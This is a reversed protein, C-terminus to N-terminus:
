YCEQWKDYRLQGISVEPYAIEGRRKIFPHAILQRTAVFVIENEQPEGYVYKRDNATTDQVLVCVLALVALIKIAFLSM